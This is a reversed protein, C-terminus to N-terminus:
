AAGGKKLLERIKPGWKASIRDKEEQSLKVEDRKPLAKPIEISLDEGAMVRRVLVEYSRAFIPQYESASLNNREYKTAKAALIVAPHSPKHRAIEHLAQEVTPMGLIEPSPQCWKVFMGPSPFFPINQERAVRFGNTLQHDSVCDAEVLAKTWESRAAKLSEPTPFARQWAPFIVQLRDFATNVIEADRESITMPKREPPLQPLDRNNIWEAIQNLSQMAM